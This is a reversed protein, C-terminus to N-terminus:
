CQKGTYTSRDSSNSRSMTGLLHGYENYVPSGSDGPIAHADTSTSDGWISSVSTVVGTELRLQGTGFGWFYVEQDKQAPAAARLIPQLRLGTLVQPPIRLQARDISACHKDISAPVREARGPVEVAIKECDNDIVHHVTLILGARPDIIVGTGKYGTTGFLLSQSTCFVQVTNKRVVQAPVIPLTPLSLGEIECEFVAIQSYSDVGSIKGSISVWQGKTLHLAAEVNTYYCNVGRYSLEWNSQRPKIDVHLEDVESVYGTITVPIEGNELYRLRANARVKNQTYENLLAGIQM